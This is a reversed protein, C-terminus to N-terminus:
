DKSQTEPERQLHTRVDEIFKPFGTQSVDCDYVKELSGYKSNDLAVFHFRPLTFPNRSFFSKGLDPGANVSWREIETWGHSRVTVWGYKITIGESSLEVTKVCRVVNICLYIFSPIVMVALLGQEFGTLGLEGQSSPNLSAFGMKVYVFMSFAFVGIAIAVLSNLVRWMM